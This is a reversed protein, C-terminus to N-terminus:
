RATRGSLHDLDLPDSEIYDLATMDELTVVVGDVKLFRGSAPVRQLWSRLLHDWRTGEFDTQEEDRIFWFMLDIPSDDWSPSARIRIERLSRLAEGEESRRDHKEQMRSQLGHVFETFDDPFPVRAFKRVLARALSRREADDCCGPTRVWGAVVSKEVTMVRDLDAVLRERMVGPVFAYRPRRGREIASLDERDVEVLPALDIFPRERCSRFVDCTQTVVVFGRVASEALNSIEDAAQIAEPTLPLEIALRHVFWQEGIVCDVQRWASLSTDVQSFRDVPGKGAKV